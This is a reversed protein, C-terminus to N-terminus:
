PAQVVPQPFSHQYTHISFVGICRRYRYAMWMWEDALIWWRQVHRGKTILLRRFIYGLIFYREKHRWATICVCWPHGVVEESTQSRLAKAVVCQIEWYLIRVCQRHQWWETEQKSWNVNYEEHSSPKKSLKSDIWVHNSSMPKATSVKCKTCGYQMWLKFLAWCLMM